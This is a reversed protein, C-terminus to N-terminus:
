QEGGRFESIRGKVWAIVEAYVWVSVAGGLKVGRPFLGKRQLDYIYTRSLGTIERVRWLRILATENERTM